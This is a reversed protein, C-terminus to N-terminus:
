IRYKRSCNSPELNIKIGELRLSRGVTGAIEGNKTYSQWGINQIHTNYLVDPKIIVEKVFITFEKKVDPNSISEITCYTLGPKNYHVINTNYDFSAIEPNSFTVRVETETTDKPSFVMLTKKSEGVYGVLSDFTWYGDRGAINEGYVEMNQISVKEVTYFETSYKIAVQANTNKNVIGNTIEVDVFVGEKYNNMNSILNNLKSPLKFFFSNYFESEYIDSKSVNYTKGRYTIKIDMESIDYKYRSNLTISWKENKATVETPCYGSPPWSYFSETENLNGSINYMTMCSNLGALGFSTYTAKPWLLSLRHGINNSNINYVDDIYGGITNPLYDGSFINGSTQYGKALATGETAAEFFNTDMDYPKNPYHSFNSASLLVAGKANYSMRDEKIEVEKSGNLWRYFNLMNLTDTKASNSLIGEVYNPGTTIPFVNYVEFDNRFNTKPKAALFRNTIQEKTHNSALNSSLVEPAVSMLTNPYDIDKENEKELEAVFESHIPAGIQGQIDNDNEKLLNEAETNENIIEKTDYYDIAEEQYDKAFVSGALLITVLLLLLVTMLKSQSKM